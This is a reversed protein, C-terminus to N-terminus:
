LISSIDGGKSSVPYPSVPMELFEGVKFIGRVGMKKLRQVICKSVAKECKILIGSQLCLSERALQRTEPDANRLKIYLCDECEKPIIMKEFGKM